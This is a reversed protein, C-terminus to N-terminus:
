INKVNKIIYKESMVKTKAYFNVPSVLDIESHYTINDNFIHDSSIYILKSNYAKCYDAIKKTFTFNAKKAIQQNKECKEVDTIGATHIIFNPRFKKLEEFFNKNSIKKLILNNNKNLFSENEYSCSKVINKKNLKALLNSGLLGTSGTIFIKKKM